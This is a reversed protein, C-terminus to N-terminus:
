GTRTDAKAQVNTGIGLVLVAMAVIMLTRKMNRIM